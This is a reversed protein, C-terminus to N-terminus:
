ELGEKPCENQSIGKYDPWIDQDIMSCYIKLDEQEDDFAMNSSIAFLVLLLLGIATKTLM